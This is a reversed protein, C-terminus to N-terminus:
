PKTVPEPAPGAAPQAVCVRNRGGRKAAYLAEDARAVLDVTTAIGSGPRTRCASASPSRSRPTASFSRTRRSPQRPHARVAGARGRPGDGRAIIAFEEGGYRAFMEDEGLMSM